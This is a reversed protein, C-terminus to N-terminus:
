EPPPGEPDRHQAAESDKAENGKANKLMRIERQPLAITLGAEQIREKVNKMQDWYVKWYLSSEVWARLAIGTGTEGLSQVMIQPAPEKLFRDEESIIGSLVQFANDISDTYLITVQIELRRKDNHSYNKLPIGWLSSNPASIFVGDPTELITSFLGMEKVTGLVTDCEIFDGKKFPRLFLIIIGAAINGMTDKLAFGVAVGAAGLLALLGNTNFGFDDLIMILCVIIVGYKIVMRLVSALTEDAKFKGAVAKKILRESTTVVIRGIFIILLAILIKRGFSLISEGYDRWLQIFHDIIEM